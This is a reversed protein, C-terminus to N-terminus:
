DRIKVVEFGVVDTVRGFRDVDMQGTRGCSECRLSKKGVPTFSGGIGRSRPDFATVETGNCDREPCGLVVDNISPYESSNSLAAM